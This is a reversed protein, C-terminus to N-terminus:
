RLSFLPSLTPPPSLPLPLSPPPLPPSPPPSSPSPSPLSPPPLSPPQFCYVIKVGPELCDREFRSLELCLGEIFFGGYCCVEPLQGEGCVGGIGCHACSPTSQPSHPPSPPVNKRVPPPESPPPPSLPPPPPPPPLPSSPMSADFCEVSATRNFSLLLVLWTRWPSGIQRCGRATCAWVTLVVVLLHELREGAYHVRDPLLPLAVLTLVEM